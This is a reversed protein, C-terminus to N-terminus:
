CYVDKSDAYDVAGPAMWQRPTEADGFQSPLGIDPGEGFPFSLGYAIAFRTFEDATGKPM